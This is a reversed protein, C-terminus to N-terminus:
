LVIYLINMFYPFYVLKQRLFQCKGGGWIKNAKKSMARFAPMDIKKEASIITLIKAYGYKKEM